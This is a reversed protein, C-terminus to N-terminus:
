NFVNIFQRSDEFEIAFNIYRSRITRLPHILGKYSCPTIFQISNKSAEFTQQPEFFSPMASPKSFTIFNIKRKYKCSYFLKLDYIQLFDIQQYGVFSIVSNM